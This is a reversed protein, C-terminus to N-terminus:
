ADARGEWRERRATAEEHERRTIRDAEAALMAAANRLQATTVDPGIRAVPIGNEMRIAIFPKEM